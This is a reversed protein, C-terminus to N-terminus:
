SLSKKSESFSVCFYILTFYYFKNMLIPSFIFYHSQFISANSDALYIASLILSYLGDFILIGHTGDLIGSSLQNIMNYQNKGTKESENVLNLITNFSLTIYFFLFFTVIFNIFNFWDERKLGSGWTYFTQHYETENFSPKFEKIPIAYYQKEFGITLFQLFFYELMYPFIKKQIESTIFKNFWNQKRKAQYCYCFFENNKKYIKDNKECCCYCCNFEDKEEKNLCCCLSSLAMNVCNLCTGCLLKCCECCPPNLNLVINESYITYGCIECVRYKNGNENKQKENKTFICVFITYLIISLIVSASYTIIIYYMSIMDGEFLWSVLSEFLPSNTVTLNTDNFFKEFCEYDLGCRTVNNDKIGENIIKQTTEIYNIEHGENYEFIFINLLYKLFYGIITTICIM